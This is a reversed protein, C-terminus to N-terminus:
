LTWLKKEDNYQKLEELNKARQKIQLIAQSFNVYREPKQALSIGGLFEAFRDDNHQNADKAYGIAVFQPKVM